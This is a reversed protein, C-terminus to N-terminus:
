ENEHISIRAIARKLSAEARASDYKEDQVRKLAREKAEKARNVDIEEPWEAADTLVITENPSITAIGGLLTGRKKEKDKIIIYFTSIAIATTLPTHDPLVAFEGETGKIVLREVDGDYFIGSPAIIKLRFTEAM